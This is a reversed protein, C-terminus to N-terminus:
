RETQPRHIVCSHRFSHTGLGPSRHCVARFGRSSWCRTRMDARFALGEALGSIAAIGLGLRMWFVTRRDARSQGRIGRPRLRRVTRRGVLVAGGKMRAVAPRVVGLQGNARSRRKVDPWRSPLVRSISRSGSTSLIVAGLGYRFSGRRAYQLLETARAARCPSVIASRQTGGKRDRAVIRDHGGAGAERLMDARGEPPLAKRPDLGLSWGEAEAVVRRPREAVPDERRPRPVDIRRPHQDLPQFPGGIGVRLVALGPLLVPAHNSGSRGCISGPPKSSSASSNAARRAVKSANRLPMLCAVTKTKM